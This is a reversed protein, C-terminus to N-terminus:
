VQYSEIDFFRKSTIGFAEGGGGGGGLTPM